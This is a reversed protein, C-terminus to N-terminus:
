NASVARVTGQSVVGGLLQLLQVTLEPSQNLLEIVKAVDGTAAEPQEAEPQKADEKDLKQHQYFEKEFRDANLRRDEDLIHSYVDSVMKLQAHGTDGQVAKMDGRNLKLKYTTSTHRLSHFVVDPLDHERILAKFSRSIVQGEIPRGNPLAIVMNFDHYEDGLFEKLESQSKKWAVLMEAVTKPLWVRRISTKTKPKKLILVTNNSTFVAPFTKIVDRGDLKDLANKSVRMLEKEIYVSANNEAISKEDIDVCDWTLGMMEGLRLSCSFALNISLALREDECVNLAKFLDDATWIARQKTESKPLTAKAVPNHEMYEWRIAQNFACNLIKHVEKVNRASVCTDSVQGKHRPASKVKLLKKYYEDMMHPTVDTIKVEGIIPNIYNDILGKKADFTSLAWKNVGYLEVFDYMLDSITKISPRVFTNNDQKYEIEAKRKKAEKMTGWTEWKQKKEGQEDYYSYVVSYKSRRKVISAM